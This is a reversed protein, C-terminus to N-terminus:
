SDQAASGGRHAAHSHPGCSEAWPKLQGYRQLLCSNQGIRQSSRRVQGQRIQAHTTPNSVLQSVSSILQTNSNHNRHQQQATKRCEGHKAGCHIVLLFVSIFLKQQLEPQRLNSNSPNISPKLLDSWGCHKLILSPVAFDCTCSYGWGLWWAREVPAQVHVFSCRAEWGDATLWGGQAKLGPHGGAAARVCGHVAAVGRGSAACVCCPLWM